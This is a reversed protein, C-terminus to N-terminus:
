KLFYKLDLDKTQLFKKRFENIKKIKSDIKAKNKLIQIIKEASNIKWGVKNMNKFYNLENYKLARIYSNNITLFFVPKKTTVVYTYATGSIDTLLYDSKEYSNLYDSSNDFYFNNYKEFKEKLSIVKYDDMNSPHPRYIIEYNNKLLKSFLINLKSQISIKPFSLYNTPAILISTKNKKKNNKIKDLIYNIKLYKFIVIKVDQNNKFLKEFIKKSDKSAVVIFNYKKLKVLLKKEKHNEVLPTDYIDHHIYVKVSNITFKDCVNNSLFLDVGYLFKLYTPKILFFNDRQVIITSGYIFYFNKKKSFYNIIFSM